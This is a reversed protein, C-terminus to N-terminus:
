ATKIRKKALVEQGQTKLTCKDVEGKENRAFELEYYQGNAVVTVDFKLPNDGKVPMLLEATEGEPQGYLKGDQVFFNIVMAQGQADFDYTGAIEALIKAMDVPKSAAQTQARAPGALVAMSILISVAILSKIKLVDEENLFIRDDQYVFHGARFNPGKMSM